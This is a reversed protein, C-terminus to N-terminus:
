MQSYIELFLKFIELFKLFENRRGSVTDSEDYQNQAYYPSQHEPQPNKRLEQIIVEKEMLEQELMQIRNKEAVIEKYM